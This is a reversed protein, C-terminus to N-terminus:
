RWVSRRDLPTLEALINLQANVLAQRESARVVRKLSELVTEEDTSTGLAKRAKALLTTDIEIMYKM